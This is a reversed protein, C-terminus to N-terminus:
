WLFNLLMNFGYVMVLDVWLIPFFIQLDYIQYLIFILFIYSRLSLLCCVVWNLFLCPSSFVDLSSIHVALLCMFLHEVDSIVLSICILGVPLYKRMGNPHNSYIFVWCVLTSLSISVDKRVIPVAM